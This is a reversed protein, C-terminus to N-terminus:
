EPSQPKPPLTFVFEGPKALGMEDRAIREITAPDSKLAEIEGALRQNEENLAAIEQELRTAEKQSRRLALLGHEGFLDHVLLLFVGAALVSRGRRRLQERLRRAETRIPQVPRRRVQQQQLSPKAISNM